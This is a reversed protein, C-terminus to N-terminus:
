RPTQTPANKGGTAVFSVCQGQNKFVGYSKWGGNNCQAKTTPFPKADVVVFDGSILPLVFQGGTPPSCDTPSDRVVIALTDPTGSGANDTVRLAFVPLFPDLSVNFMAVNGDVALCTLPAVFGVAGSAGLVGTFNEGSPGSRADVTFTLVGIPNNVTGSGTVSDQTPSQASAVGAPVAAAVVVVGVVAATRMM